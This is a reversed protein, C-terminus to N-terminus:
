FITRIHFSYFNISTLCVKSINDEALFYIDEVDSKLQVHIIMSLYSDGSDGSDTKILDFHKDKVGARWTSRFM